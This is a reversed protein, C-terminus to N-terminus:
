VPENVLSFELIRANVLEIRTDGMQPEVGRPVM